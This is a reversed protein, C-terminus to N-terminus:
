MLIFSVEKKYFFIVNGKSFITGQLAEELLKLTLPSLKPKYFGLTAPVKHLVGFSSIKQCFFWRVYIKYM